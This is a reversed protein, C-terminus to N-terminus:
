AGERAQRPVRPFHSGDEGEKAAHIRPDYRGARRSGGHALMISRTEAFAAPRFPPVDLGLRAGEARARSRSSRQPPRSCSEASGGPASSLWYEPGPLHERDEAVNVWPAGADPDASGETVRPHIFVYIDDM